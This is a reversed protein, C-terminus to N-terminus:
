NRACVADISRSGATGLVHDLGIFSGNPKQMLYASDPAVKAIFVMVGGLRIDTRELGNSMVSRILAEAGFM